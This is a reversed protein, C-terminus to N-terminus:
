RLGTCLPATLFGSSQFHNLRRSNAPPLSSSCTRLQPRRM